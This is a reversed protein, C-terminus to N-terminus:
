VVFKLFKSNGTQSWATNSTFKSSLLNYSQFVPEQGFSPKKRTIERPLSIAESASKPFELNSNVSFLDTDRWCNKKVCEEKNRWWSSPRGEFANEVKPTNEDVFNLNL